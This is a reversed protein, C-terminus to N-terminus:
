CSTSVWALVPREQTKFEGRLSFIISPAPAATLPCIVTNGLVEGPCMEPGRSEKRGECINRRFDESCRERAGRGAPTKGLQPSARQGQAQSSENNAGQAPEEGRREGGTRGAWALRDLHFCRQSVRFLSGRHCACLPRQQVTRM